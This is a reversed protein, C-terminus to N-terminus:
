PRPDQNKRLRVYLAGGGGHKPHAPQFGSVINRFQPESLWEPVARRIRGGREPSDYSNFGHLMHRSFPASGKGTVVIVFRYGEAYANSLYSFLRVRATELSEGHLDIRADISIQGRMLRQGTRRDIGSLPPIKPAAPRPVSNRPVTPKQVNRAVTKTPEAIKRSPQEPTISTTSKIRKRLPTVTEIVRQWLELDPVTPGRRSAM